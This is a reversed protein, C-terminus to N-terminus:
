NNLLDLLQKLRYIRPVNTQQIRGDEPWIWVAKMGANLAGRVDKGFSDGVFLIEEPKLNLQRIAENFLRIDPKHYGYDGSIIVSDFISLDLKASIKRRQSYKEGNTLIGLKYKGKLSELVELTDPLLEVFRHINEEFAKKVDLDKVPLHYVDEVKEMITSKPVYSHQDWIMIDQLIAEKLIPDDSFGEVNESMFWEYFKYAYVNRNGLTDDFDFIIAKINEMDM